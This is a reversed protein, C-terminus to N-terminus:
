NLPIMSHCSAPLQQLTIVGHTHVPAISGADGSPSQLYNRSWWAAVGRVSCRTPAPLAAISLWLPTTLWRNEADTPTRWSVFLGPSARLGCKPCRWSQKNWPKNWTKAREGERTRGERRGTLPPWKTGHYVWMIAVEACEITVLLFLFSLQHRCVRANPDTSLGTENHRKCNTVDVETHM